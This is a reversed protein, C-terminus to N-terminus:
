YFLKFWFFYMYILAGVCVATFSNLEQKVARHIYREITTAPAGKAFFMDEVNLRTHEATRAARQFMEREFAKVKETLLTATESSGGGRAKNTAEIIAHALNMADEMALNVGEGAFPTMLHASDGMLTVGPRNEWWHGVPLMYLSRALVDNEDGAQPFKRLEPAWDHFEEAIAQKVAKADHLDYGCNEKWDEPKVGMTYVMLSGDGKQQAMICKGDSFTFLSGRNVLRHLDPYRAEADAIYFDHGGIGAYFPQVKSVLPRVKSWAGDAGVILDFSKETGYDFHLCLDEDVRQLRSKWRVTGEPLSELLLRRLRARDIEPRGRSSKSTSGGLKIYKRLKKDAITIAEGDFRAYKLFEDYLGAEKLAALGTATHLDLTGGQARTDPAAESEFITVPINARILLRALTCGAPGAGIIAIKPVSM